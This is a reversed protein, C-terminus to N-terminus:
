YKGRLVLPRSHERDIILLTMLPVASVNFLYQRNMPRKLTDIEPLYTQFRPNRKVEEFVKTAALEAFHPVDVM